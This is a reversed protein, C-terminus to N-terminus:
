AYNRDGARGEDIRKKLAKRNLEILPLHDLYYLQAYRKFDHYRKENKVVVPKHASLIEFAFFPDTKYIDNLPVIQVRKEVISELMATDYGIQMLDVDGRCWVGIDVDSMAHARGTAYSGFLVVFEYEKEEFYDRLIKMM